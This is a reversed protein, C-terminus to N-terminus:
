FQGTHLLLNSWAVCIVLGCMSSCVGFKFFDLYSLQPSVDRRTTAVAIVNTTCGLLSLNGAMTVSWTLLRWCLWPHISAQALPALVLVTPVSGITNTLVLCVAVLVCQNSLNSVDLKGEHLPLGNTLIQMVGSGVLGATVVVMGAIILLLQYDIRSVFQTSSKGLLIPSMATIVLATGIMLYGRPLSIWPLLFCISMALVAVCLVGRYACYKPDEQVSQDSDSDTNQKNEEYSAEIDPDEQQHEYNYHKQAYWGWGLPHRMRLFWLLLLTNCFLAGMTPLLSTEFYALATMGSMEAVLIGNPNGSLLMTSALNASSCVSLLVPTRPLDPRVALVQIAIPTILLTAADNTLLLSLLSSAAVLLLLLRIDSASALYKVVLAQFRSAELNASLLSAGFLLALTHLSSSLFAQQSSIDTLLLVCGAATLVSWPRGFSSLFPLFVPQVVCLQTVCFLGVMTSTTTTTDLEVTGLAIASLFGAICLCAVAIRQAGVCERKVPKVEVEDPTIDYDEEEEWEDVDFWTYKSNVWAEVEIFRTQGLQLNGFSKANCPTPVRFTEEETKWKVSYSNHTSYAPSEPTSSVNLGSSSHVVGTPFEELLPAQLKLGWEEGNDGGAAVLESFDNKYNKNPITLVGEEEESWEQPKAHDARGIRGFGTPSHLDAWSGRPKGQSHTRREDGPEM